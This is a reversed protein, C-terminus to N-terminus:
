ALMPLSFYVVIILSSYKVPFQLSKYNTNLFSRIFAHPTPSDWSHWSIKRAQVIVFLDFTCQTIYECVIKGALQWLRVPWSKLIKRNAKIKRCQLLYKRYYKLSISMCIFFSTQFELAEWRSEICKQFLHSGRLSPYRIRKDILQQAKWGLASYNTVPDSMNQEPIAIDLLMILCYYSQSNVKLEGDYSQCLGLLIRYAWWIVM